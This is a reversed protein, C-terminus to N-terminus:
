SPVSSSPSGTMVKFIQFVCNRQTSIVWEDLRVESFGECSQRLPQFFSESWEARWYFVLRWVVDLNVLAFIAPPLPRPILTQKKM